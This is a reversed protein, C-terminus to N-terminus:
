GGVGRGFGGEGDELLLAEAAGDRRVGGDVARLDGPEAGDGAADGAREGGAREIEEEGAVGDRRDEAPVQPRLRRDRKRCAQRARHLDPRLRQRPPRHRIVTQVPHPM